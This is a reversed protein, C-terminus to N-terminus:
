QHNGKDGSAPRARVLSKTPTLGRGRVFVIERTPMTRWARLKCASLSTDGGCGARPHLPCLLNKLSFGGLVAWAPLQPPVGM